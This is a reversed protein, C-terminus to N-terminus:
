SPDIRNWIWFISKLDKNNVPQIAPIAAVLEEKNNAM